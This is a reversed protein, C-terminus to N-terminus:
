QAAPGGRRDGTGGCESAQSCGLHLCILELRRQLASPGVRLIPPCALAAEALEARGGYLRQLGAVAEESPRRALLGACQQLVAPLAASPLGLTGCVLQRAERLGAEARLESCAPEEGEEAAASVAAPVDLCPIHPSPQSACLGAHLGRPTVIIRCWPVGAACCRLVAACERSLLDLKRATFLFSVLAESAAGGLGQAAAAAQFRRVGEANAALWDEFAQSLGRHKGRKARAKSKGAYAAAAAAALAESPAPAAAAAAEAAVAAAAEMSPGEGGPHQQQQQAEATDGGAAAAASASAEGDGSPAPAEECELDAAFMREAFGVVRDDLARGDRTVRYPPRSSAPAAARRGGRPPAWAAAAAASPEGWATQRAFGNALPAGQSGALARAASAARRALM